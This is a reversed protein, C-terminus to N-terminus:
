ATKKMLQLLRAVEKLNSEIKMYVCLRCCFHLGAASISADAGVERQCDPNGCRVTKM